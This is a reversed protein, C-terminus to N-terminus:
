DLEPFIAFIVINSQSKKCSSKSLTAFAFKNIDAIFFTNFIKDFFSLGFNNVVGVLTVSMIGYTNANGFDACSHVSIGRVFLKQFFDNGCRNFPSYPRLTEVPLNFFKFLIHRCTLLKIFKAAINRIIKRVFASTFAPIIDASPFIKFFSIRPPSITKPSSPVGVPKKFSLINGTSTAFSTRTSICRMYFCIENFKKNVASNFRARSKNFRKISVSM